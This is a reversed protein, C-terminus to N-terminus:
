KGPEAEAADAAALQAAYDRNDIAGSVGTTCVVYRTAFTALPVSFREVRIVPVAEEIRMHPREILVDIRSVSAVIADDFAPPTGGHLDGDNRLRVIDGRKVESANAYNRTPYLRAM